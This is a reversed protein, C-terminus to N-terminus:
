KMGRLQAPVKSEIVHDIIGYKKGMQPTLVFDRQVDQEIQKLTQSTHLALLEYLRTRLDLLQQAQIAIDSAQGGASGRPQRIIIRSNPMAYRKGKVGGALLLTSESVCQGICYTRCPLGTVTMADYIALCAMTDGGISNLYIQVESEHDQSNLFLLQAIIVNAIDVTIYGSIFIIRDKLLRSWVDYSREGKHTEEYILPVPYGM